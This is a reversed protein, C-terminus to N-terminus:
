WAFRGVKARAVLAHSIKLMTVTDQSINGAMTNGGGGCTEYGSTRERTPQEVLISTGRGDDGGGNDGTRRMMGKHGRRDNDEAEGTGPGRRDDLHSRAPMADEEHKRQHHSSLVHRRTAQSDVTVPRARGSSVRHRRGGDAPLNYNKGAPSSSLALMAASYSTASTSSEAWRGAGATAADGEYTNRRRGAATGPGWFGSSSTLSPLWLGELSVEVQDAQKEVRQRIVTTSTPLEGDDHASTPTEQPFSSPEDAGAPSRSSSSNNNNSNINQYSSSSYDLCESGMAVPTPQHQHKHALNNDRSSHLSRQSSRIASRKKRTRKSATRKTSTRTRTSTLQRSPQHHPPEGPVPQEHLRQKKLSLLVLRAIEQKNETSLM